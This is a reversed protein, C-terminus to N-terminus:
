IRAILRKKKCFINGFVSVNWQTLERRLKSLAKPTTCSVDWVKEVTSMFQPHKFYSAHFRFHKERSNGSQRALTIFLPSHDM